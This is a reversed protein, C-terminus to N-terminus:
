LPTTPPRRSALVIQPPKKKRRKTNIRYSDCQLSSEKEWVVFFLTESLQLPVTEPSTSFYLTPLSCWPNWCRPAPCYSTQQQWISTPMQSRNSGLSHAQATFDSKPLGTTCLVLVLLCYTCRWSSSFFFAERNESDTSCNCSVACKATCFLALRMLFALLFSQSSFSSFFFLFVRPLTWNARMAKVSNLGWRQLWHSEKKRWWSM